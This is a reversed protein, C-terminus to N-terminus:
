LTCVIYFFIPYGLNVALRYLFTDSLLGPTFAFCIQKQKLHSYYTAWRESCSFKEITEFSDQSTM